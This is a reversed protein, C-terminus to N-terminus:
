TPRPRACVSRKLWDRDIGEHAAKEVVLQVWDDEFARGCLSYYAAAARASSLLLSHLDRACRMQLGGSSHDRIAVRAEFANEGIVWYDGDPTTGFVIEGRGSATTRLNDTWSSLTALFPDSVQSAETGRLPHCDTDWVKLTSLDLVSMLERLDHPLAYGLSAEARVLSDEGLHRLRPLSVYSAAEDTVEDVSAGDRVLMEEAERRALRLAELIDQVVESAM